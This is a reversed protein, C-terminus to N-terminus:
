LLFHLCRYMLLLGLSVRLFDLCMLHWLYLLLFLVQGLAHIMM